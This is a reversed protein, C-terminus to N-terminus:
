ILIYKNLISCIKIINYYKIFALTTLSQKNKNM